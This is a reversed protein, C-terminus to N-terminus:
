GIKAARELFQALAVTVRDKMEKYQDMSLEGYSEVDAPDLTFPWRKIVQAFYPFLQEDEELGEGTILKIMVRYEKRKLAGYNVEWRPDDPLTPLQAGERDPDVERESASNGEGEILSPDPTLAQPSTREEMEAVSM